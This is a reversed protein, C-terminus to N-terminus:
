HLIREKKARLFEGQRAVKDPDYRRHGDSRATVIGHRLALKRFTNVSVGCVYAAEKLNLNRRYLKEITM